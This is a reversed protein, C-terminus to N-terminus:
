FFLSLRLFDFYSELSTKKGQFIRLTILLSRVEDHRFLPRNMNRGRVPKYVGGKKHIRGKSKTQLKSASTNKKREKACKKMSIRLQMQAIKRENASKLPKCELAHKQTRGRKSRRPKPVAAKQPFVSLSDVPKRALRSDAGTKRHHWSRILPSKFLTIQSQEKCLLEPWGKELGKDVFERFVTQLNRNAFTGPRILPSKLLTIQSQEKCLSKSCGM